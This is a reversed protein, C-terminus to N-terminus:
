FPSTHTLSRTQSTLTYPERLFHSPTNTLRHTHTHMHQVPPWLQCCTSMAAPPAWSDGLYPQNAPSQAGLLRAWPVLCIQSDDTHVCHLSVFPVSHVSCHVLLALLPDPHPVFSRDLWSPFPWPAVCPHTFM